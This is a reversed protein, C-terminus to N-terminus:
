EFSIAHLFLPRRPISWTKYWEILTFGSRSNILNICADITNFMNIGAETLRLMYLKCSGPIDSSLYLQLFKLLSFESMNLDDDTGTKINIIHQIALSTSNPSMGYCGCVKTGLWDKVIQCDFINGYCSTKISTSFRISLQNRNDFVLPYIQKLRKMWQCQLYNALLRSSLLRCTPNYFQFILICKLIFQYQALTCSSQNLTFLVM